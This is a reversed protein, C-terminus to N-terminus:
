PNGFIVQVPAGGNWFVALVEVFTRGNPGMHMKEDSHLITHYPRAGGSFVWPIDQLEALIVDRWRELAAADAPDNRDDIGHLNLAFEDISSYQILLPLGLGEPPPQAIFPYARASLFCQGPREGRARASAECLPNLSSGWFDYADVVLNRLSVDADGPRYLPDDFNPIFGGDDLLRLRGEAAAHPLLSALTDANVEVGIGGASSGAFLVRTQPDADDLGYRHILIELMARANIRGSFYWGGPDAQTPRKEATAGSWGDSSCYHAFVFNADYFTPNQSASRNFIGTQEIAVSSRDDANPTSSLKEGRAACNLANDDCFGGGELYIVWERSQGSPSLQLSFGFPSGDNCRAAGWRAADREAPKVMEAQRMPLPRECGSVDYGSGDARLAAAGGTWLGGLELCPITQLAVLSPSATPPVSETAAPATSTHGPRSPFSCAALMLLVLLIYKRRKM